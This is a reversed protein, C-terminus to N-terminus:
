PRGNRKEQSILLAEIREIRPLVGAKITAALEVMRRGNDERGQDLSTIHKDLRDAARQLDKFAEVCEPLMAQDHEKPKGSPMKEIIASVLKIGAMALFFLLAALGAQEVRSIAGGGVDATVAFSSLIAFFSGVSASMMMPIRVMTASSGRM